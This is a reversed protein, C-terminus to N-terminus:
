KLLQLYPLFSTVLSTKWFTRKFIEAESEDIRRHIASTGETMLKRAVTCTMRRIRENDTILYNTVSTLTGEFFKVWEDAKHPAGVLLTLPSADLFLLINYMMDSSTAVELPKL